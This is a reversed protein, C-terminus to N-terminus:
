QDRLDEAMWGDDFKTAWRSIDSDAKERAASLGAFNDILGASQRIAVDLRAWNDFRSMWQMDGWLLHSFTGHIPEGRDRITHGIEEFTLKVLRRRLQEQGKLVM